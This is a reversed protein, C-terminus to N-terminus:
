NILSFLGRFGRAIARASTRKLASSKAAQEAGESLAGADVAVAFLVGL